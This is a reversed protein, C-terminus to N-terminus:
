LILFNVYFIFFASKVGTKWFFYFYGILIFFINLIVLKKLFAFNPPTDLHCLLFVDREGEELLM